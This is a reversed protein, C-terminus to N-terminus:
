PADEPKLEGDDLTQPHAAWWERFRQNLAEISVHHSSSTGAQYAQWAIDMPRLHTKDSVPARKALILLFRLAVFVVHAIGLVVLHARGDTVGHVIFAIGVVGVLVLLINRVVLLTSM